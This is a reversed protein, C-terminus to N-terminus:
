TVECIVNHYLDQSILQYGDILDSIVCVREVLRKSLVNTQSFGGVLDQFFLLLFVTYILQPAYNSFAKVPLHTIIVKDQLIFLRFSWSTARPLPTVNPTTARWWMVRRASIHGIKLPIVLLINFIRYRQTIYQGFIYVLLWM